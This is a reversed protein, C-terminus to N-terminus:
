SHESHLACESPEHMLIRTCSVLMILFKIHQITFVFATMVFTNWQSFAIWWILYGFVNRTVNDNRISDKKKECQIQTKNSQLRISFYFRSMFGYKAIVHQVHGLFPSFINFRMLFVLFQISSSEWRMVNKM